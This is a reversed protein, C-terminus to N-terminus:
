ARFQTARGGLGVRLLTSIIRSGAKLSGRVSGAVKSTGAVRTYYPLPVERVRLGARPAKIQMELNWGYTMERMDLRLLDAVRLARFACMDTYRTGTLLGVAAGIVVGAALQHAGMSGKARGPGARTAIVFDATGALLPALIDGAREVADAGDGDLFLVIEAGLAQAREVGSLCARGYGRRSECVVDAGAAEAEVVTGDRSGGDVVIAVDVCAPLRKLTPGIAGQENLVPIVAAVRLV